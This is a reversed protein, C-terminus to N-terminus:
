SSSISDAMALVSSILNRDPRADSGYSDGVFLLRSDTHWKSSGVLKQVWKRDSPLTSNSWGVTHLTIREGVTSLDPLAKHVKRHARKLRRVAKVVSPADLSSEYDIPAQFSLNIGRHHYVEAAEAPVLTVEPLSCPGTLRETITVVSVPKSKLALRLVPVPILRRELWALAQWPPQAVVLREATYKGSQTTLCWQDEHFFAEVIQSQPVFRFGPSAQFVDIIGSFVAPWDGYHLGSAAYRMRALVADGCSDWVSPVGALRGIAALVPASPGKKNSWITDITQDAPARLLHEFCRDWDRRCAPGGYVEALDGSLCTAAPRVDLNGAVLFGIMDRRQDIAELPDALDSFGRLTNELFALEDSSIASLGTRSLPDAPELGCLRGGAGGAQDLMLISSEPRLLRLRAAALIGALGSGAVITEYRGSSESEASM